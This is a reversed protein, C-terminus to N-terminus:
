RRRWAAEYALWHLMEDRRRRSARPLRRLEEVSVDLHGYRIKRGSGRVLVGGAPLVIVVCKWSPVPSMEPSHPFLLYELDSEVPLDRVRRGFGSALETEVLERLQAATLVRAVAPVPLGWRSRVTVLDRLRDFM